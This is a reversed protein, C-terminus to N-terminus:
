VFTVQLSASLKSNRLLRVFFHRKAALPSLCAILHHDSPGISWSDQSPSPPLSHAGRRESPGTPPSKLKWKIDLHMQVYRLSYIRGALAHCAGTTGVSFAVVGGCPVFSLPGGYDGVPAERM